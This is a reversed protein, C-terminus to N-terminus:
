YGYINYSESMANVSKFLRDMYIFPGVIIFGGLIGWLWYTTSSFDSPINRRRVEDGVRDSLQHNWVLPYIGFTIIGLLLMVLYNMTKKGDYPSAVINVNDVLRFMVIIGYIGFTIFSLLIYKGLSFDTRLQARMPPQSEYGPNQQNPQEYSM